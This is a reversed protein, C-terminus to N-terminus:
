KSLQEVLTKESTNAYVMTTRINNHGCVKAITTIPVQKNVLRTAFTHRGVHSTVKQEIGILEKCIAKVRETFHCRDGSHFFGDLDDEYMTLIDKARGDFITSIPVRTFTHTKVSTYTLWTIDGEVSIKAGTCNIFDSYRMGTYSLFLFRHMTTRFSKRIKPKCVWNEIKRIDAENLAKRAGSYERRPKKYWSFSCHPVSDGYLDKAIHYYCKIIQVDKEITTDKVKGRWSDIFGEFLDDTLECTSLMPCYDRLKRLTYRHIKRTSETINRTEIKSAMMEYFDTTILREDWARRLMSLSCDGDHDLVFGELDYMIKRIRRNLDKYRPHTSKVACKCKNWDDPMVSVDTDFIIVQNHQSARIKVSALGSMTPTFVIDFSISPATMKSGTIPAAIASKRYNCTTM